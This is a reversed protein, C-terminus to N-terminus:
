DHGEQGFLTLCELKVEDFRFWPNIEVDQVLRVGHCMQADHLERDHTPGADREVFVFGLLLNVGDDWRLVGSSGNKRHLKPDDIGIGAVNKHVGHGFGAFREHNWLVM